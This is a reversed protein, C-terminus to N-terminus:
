RGAPAKRILKFGYKKTLKESEESSLLRPPRGAREKQRERRVRHIWDLSPTEWTEKESKHQKM